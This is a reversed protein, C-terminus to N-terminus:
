GPLALCAALIALAAACKMPTEMRTSAPRLAVDTGKGITVCDSRDM